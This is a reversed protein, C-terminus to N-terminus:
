QIACKTKCHSLINAEHEAYTKAFYTVDDDGSLFYMYDGSAPQAVAILATLGPSSIPGPPLGKHRRTNYPSDLNTDREVGTKDAIYQYTVDSGLVMDTKLRTYFIQAVQKQDQAKNVEKQIISAMTIGQYLNLNQSAYQEILKNEKVKTYFEDFVRVLIDHVTTGTGFNYTEGYIYGELDTAAPKGAFLPSDYRDNLATKIEESSYGAKKLVTTIDTKKAESKTTSDTLTSGPYFTVSFEDVAGNVIHDTIQQTTEAPSLRYTGAQLIGSKHSLRTYIEFAISSKIISQKELQKGIQNPTSNKEIKVLKLQNIDSGVSQLQNNYWVYVSVALTAVLFIIIGLILLIIKHKPWKKKKPVDLGSPQNNIPQPTIQIIPTQPELM